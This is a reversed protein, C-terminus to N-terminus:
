IHILSLDAIIVPVSESGLTARLAELKKRDRGGIAWRLDGDLGHEKFLYEAVLAGTFGSAGYVVVDFEREGMDGM